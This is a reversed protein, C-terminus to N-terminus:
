AARGSEILERVSPDAKLRGKTVKEIQVQRLPPIADKKKWLWVAQYHCDLAEAAESVGHFYSLVEDVTM